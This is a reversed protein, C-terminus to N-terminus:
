EDPTAIVNTGNTLSETVPFTTEFPKISGPSDGKRVKVRATFDGDHTFPDSNLTDVGAVVDIFPVWTPSADAHVQGWTGAITFTKTGIDVATYVYPIENVRIYGTPPTDAKITENVVCTSGGSTTAGNLTYETDLFGSETAASRGVTVRAGIPIDGITISALVPNQTVSGDDSIMQYNLLDAPQAGQILWGQAVFWKGGAVAGFPAAANPTYAPDLARYQWGEVGGITETSDQDCIAQCYQAAQAITAGGSLTITGKYLKSGNADGTDFNVDGVAIAIGTLALASALDLTTWDTLSTSIAVSQEGGAVLNAAFDSYTQGYKRSFARIDGNDILNGANRAKVMIQIHGDPWYKALKAGNQVIYVPSNAVLPTGISKVGTYLTAGGDQSISGFNFYQVTTDDVNYGNILNLFMPKNSARPGDLNSPNDKMIFMEDGATVVQGDDALGQLWEHGELASYVTTGSAHRIERALSITLDDGIAM